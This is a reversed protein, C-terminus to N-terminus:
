MRDLQAKPQLNLSSMYDAKEVHIKRFCLAVLPHKQQNSHVPLKSSLCFQRTVAYMVGVFKRSM